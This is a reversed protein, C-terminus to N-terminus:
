RQTLLPKKSVLIDIGGLKEITFQVLKKCEKPQTLDAQCYLIKSEKFHEELVKKM